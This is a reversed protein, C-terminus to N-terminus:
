APPAPSRARTRRGTPRGARRWRRRGPRRARGGRHRASQREVVEMERRQMAQRQRVGVVPDHEGREHDDRRDGTAHGVHCPRPCALRLLPTALRVQDGVERPHKERRRGRPMARPRPASTAAATPALLATISTGAPSLGVGAPWTAMSRPSSRRSPRRTTRPSPSGSARDAGAPAPRERRGPAARSRAQLSVGQLRLGDLRRREQSAILELRARQPRDGVVQPGGQGGDDGGTVRDLGLGDPGLVTALEACRHHLLALPQRAHDPVQEIERTDLGARGIWVAHLKGEVLHDLRGDCRKALVDLEPQRGLQRRRRRGACSSRAIALTTSFATLCAPSRVTCIRAARTPSRTTTRTTSWPRPMGEESCARMKSAKSRPRSAPGPPDPSPRAIALPNTSALPPRSADLRDGALARREDERERQRIRRHSWM